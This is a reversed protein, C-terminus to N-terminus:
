VRQKKELAAFAHFRQMLHDLAAKKDRFFRHAKILRSHSLVGLLRM